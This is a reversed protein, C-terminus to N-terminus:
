YTRNGGGARSGGDGQPEEGIRGGMHLGMVQQMTEMM